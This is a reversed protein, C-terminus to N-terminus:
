GSQRRSLVQGADNLIRVNGTVTEAAVFEVSATAHFRAGPERYFRVERIGTPLFLRRDAALTPDTDSAGVLVQFAADLLAPHLRYSAVEGASAAAIEAVAKGGSVLAGARRLVCPWLDSRPRVDERLVGRHGREATIGARLADLDVPPAETLKTTAMVGRPLM